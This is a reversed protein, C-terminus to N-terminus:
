RRMKLFGSLRRVQSMSVEVNGADRILLRLVSANKSYRITHVNLLRRTSISISMEHWRPSSSKWVTSAAPRPASPRREYAVHTDYVNSDLMRARMM